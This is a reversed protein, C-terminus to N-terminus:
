EVWLRLIEGEVRARLRGGESLGPLLVHRRIQGLRVVVEENAVAIDLAKANLFPIGLRLEREAGPARAPPVNADGDHYLAAGRLAWTDRDAPTAIIPDIRLKPRANGAESSFIQRTELSVEAPNAPVVLEDVAIGYLGL